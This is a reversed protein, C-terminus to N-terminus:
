PKVTPNLLRKARTVAQERQYLKFLFPNDMRALM